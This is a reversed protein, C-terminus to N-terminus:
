FLPEVYPLRKREIAAKEQARRGIRLHRESKNKLVRRRYNGNRYMSLFDEFGYKKIGMIIESYIGRKVEAGRFINGWTGAYTGEFYGVMDAPTPEHGLFALIGLSDDGYRYWAIENWYHKMTFNYEGEIERYFLTEGYRAITM